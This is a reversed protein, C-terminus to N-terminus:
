LYTFTTHFVSFSVLFHRLPVFILFFVFIAVTPATAFFSVSDVFVDAVSVHKGPSVRSTQFTSLVGRKLNLVWAEEAEAACLEEVHGDQFAFRLSSRTLAEAMEASHSSGQLSVQTLQLISFIFLYIFLYM